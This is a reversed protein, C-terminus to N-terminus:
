RLSLPCRVEWMDPPAAELPHDLDEPDPKEPSAVHLQKARTLQSEISDNFEQM